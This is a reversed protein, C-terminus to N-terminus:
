AQSGERRVGKFTTEASEVTNLERVGYPNWGPGHNPAFPRKGDVQLFECVEHTEVEIYRDLLWRLWSQRNFTAAPVIFYHNVEYTEGRDPHYTNYGHSLIRLTLGGARPDKDRELDVLDVHWGPRYQVGRVLEELETPFPAEQTMVDPGSM